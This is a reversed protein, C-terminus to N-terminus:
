SLVQPNVCFQLPKGAFFNALDRAVIDAGRRAAERSAGAIHPTVTVNDLALLPWDAPPPEEAFTDLAAGGLHGGALADYLARYDVLPGRATNILFAGPKMQAFQEAGMMHTTEPTVRAHISVIDAAGLLTPLDMLEVRLAAAQEPAVYPDFALIRMNFPKLYPILGQAIAGFGVLGVTQGQLEQGAHEYRYREGQWIGQSLAKHARSIGRCETLMVGLTFEIVAQANRAPANVVPIGRATAAAVNINVPGGRCCGIIKLNPLMQLMASTVPAVHTVLVAAQQALEVIKHFDGVYERVEDNSIQPTDPWDTQMIGFTLESGDAPLGAAQLHSRLATAFFEPHVFADGIIAIQM